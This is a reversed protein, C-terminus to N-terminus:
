RQCSLPDAICKDTATPMAPKGPAHVAPALDIGATKCATVVSKRVVAAVRAFSRKASASDGLKCAAITCAAGVERESADTCDRAVDAYRQEAFAREIRQAPTEAIEVPDPAPAADDVVAITEGADVPVVAPALRVAAADVPLVAVPIRPSRDHDSSTRGSSAIVLVVGGLAIAAGSVAFVVARTSGRRVIVTSEQPPPRPKGRPALGPPVVPSAPTEAFGYGFLTQSPVTPSREPPTAQIPLPPAPLAAPEDMARGYATTRVFPVTSLMAATAIEPGVSDRAATIAASPATGRGVTAKAMAMPRASATAATIRPAQSAPEQQAARELTPRVPVSSESYPVRVSFDELEDLQEEVSPQSESVTLMSESLVTIGTREEELELWPEKRTGFVDRMYRGLAKTSLQMGLKAAIREIAEVVDDATRFRDDPRKALLRAVLEDIEPAIDSRLQSPPTIPTKVIATMTEFDSARRYLRDGVLMEWLVIGLSFLDSRRDVQRVRCQEPSLYSIKGKVTGSQTEVASTAAKAVGFDVVKVGGEYSIMLNSPSVDRHVIGLPQGDVGLREHAHHLGAAAGAIVSLVVSVPVRQRNETVQHMLGRVTEGHVYEMTFFYSDGLKGIDYVQAINPHQLQAALKAEDLFMAVFDANSAKERLIRKLVVYRQLGGTGASRALFIEAMGGVALKALVLYSSATSGVEAVVSSSM